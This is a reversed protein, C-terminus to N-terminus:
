APRVVIAKPYAPCHMQCVGCGTCGDAKVQVGSDPDIEIAKAGVPCKEACDRCDQGMFRLCSDHTWEALGMRVSEPQVSQLAGSPCAYSCPVDQCLVCAQADPDIYPTGGLRTDDSQYFKIAQVPCVEACRGNRMCTALFETEPLAGPPRLLFRPEGAPAPPIPPEPMGALQQFDELPREVSEALPEVVERLLARFFGRRDGKRKEFREWSM